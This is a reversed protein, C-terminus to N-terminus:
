LILTLTLYSPGQLHIYTKLIICLNSIYTCINYLIKYSISYMIVYWFKTHLDQYHIKTGCDEFDLSRGELEGLNYKSWELNQKSIKEIYVEIV